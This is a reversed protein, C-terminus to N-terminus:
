SIHVTYHTQKAESSGLTAKHVGGGTGSVLTKGPVGLFAELSLTTPGKRRPALPDDLVTGFCDQFDGCPSRKSLEM